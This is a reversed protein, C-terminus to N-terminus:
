FKYKFTLEARTGEEAVISENGYTGNPPSWNQEDTFNLVSLRAEWTDTGYYISTDFEFQSPIVLTGAWNNNMENHFTGNVTMGWGNDWKYSVLANFQFSPLGQIKVKGSTVSNRQVEPAAPPSVNLAEFGLFQGPVWAHIYGMSVTAFFKKNPQYNAELEFGNYTYTAVPSNIPKNQRTQHYVAAGLFLTNDMMSRKVGAEILESPQTFDSKQLVIEGSGDRTLGAFGGGNGTAGSTNESYNGTLYFTYDPIPEFIISANVNPLTVSISRESDATFPDETTVDLFDLRGGAIVRVTDSLKFFSQIFPSGSWAHSENTDGNELQASAVRGPYGPVPGGDFGFAGQGYGPFNVSNTVDIFNHDRTLDWVAAPEFYFDNYAKNSMYRAAVGANFTNGEGWNKIFELRSELTITPDVIESYYYSSYTERRLYTFLTNNVITLDPNGKFTQVAQAKFSRGISNDGPKLLRNRRNIYVEPGWDMVNSPFGSTVYASNQPDSNPVGAGQNMNVGTRYLGNQILNNTPRNIGFNETYEAYFGQANLFLEYDDSPRYTLAGYLAHSKRYSDDYWGDSDEGSYSIRYALTDSIPAGYDVGMRFIEDTGITVWTEGKAADFFPRKSVYDIFGGVYASAGQVATAPGKVINVSEVWNFDVPMGNGNSTTGARMGNLFVDAYQGRIDPNAPAGFNSRTFSSSTLKAFDRVDTIAIATLQERSIVTVSRPTNLINDGVGFVSNFPRSTPMINEEIPVDSVEFSEMEIPEEEEAQAGLFSASGAVLAALSLHKLYTRNM